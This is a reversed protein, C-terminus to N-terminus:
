RNDWIWIHGSDSGSVVYEDRPGFYRVNKLFTDYNLHGGFVRSHGIINSNESIPKGDTPFEFIQYGQYSVLLKRADYSYTM